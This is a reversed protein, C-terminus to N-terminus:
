SRSWCMPVFRIGSMEAEDGTAEFGQSAYFAVANVSARLRVSPVQSHGLLHQLLAKGWGHGQAAMDVFLHTIYEGDRLAGFGIVKGQVEMKVTYFATPDFVTEVDPLVKRAFTQRGVDSFHPFIAAESVKEVLEVVQPLDDRTVTTIRM